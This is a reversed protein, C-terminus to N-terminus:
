FIQCQADLDIAGCDQCLIAISVYYIAIYPQTVNHITVNGLHVLWNQCQVSRYNTSGILALCNM